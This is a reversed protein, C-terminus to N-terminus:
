KCVPSFFLSLKCVPCGCVDDLKAEKRKSHFVGEDDDEQLMVTHSVSVYLVGGMVKGSVLGACKQNSQGTNTPFVLSVRSFITETDKDKVLLPSVPCQRSM